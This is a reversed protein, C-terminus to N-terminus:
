FPYKWDPHGEMFVYETWEKKTMGGGIEKKKTPKTHKKRFEDGATRDVKEQESRLKTLLNQFNQPTSVDIGKQEAIQLVEIFAFLVHFENKGAKWRYNYARKAMEELTKADWTQTM